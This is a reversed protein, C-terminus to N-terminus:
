NALDNASRLVPWSALVSPDALEPGRVTFTATEGPLLTVLMDDVVAGPMVEDATLALDRLLVQATVQVRYGGEM